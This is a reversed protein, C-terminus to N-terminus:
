KRNGAYRWGLWPSGKFTPSEIRTIKIKTIRAQATQFTTLVTCLHEPINNTEYRGWL